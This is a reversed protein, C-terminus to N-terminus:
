QSFNLTFFMVAIVWIFLGAVYSSVVLKLSKDFNTKLEKALLYALLFWYLLEFINITQLPYVFWPAINQYGVANLLSFPYFYQLDELAFDKQYFYFWATKVIIVLLFIFEAQTVIDFVKKYSLKKGSFYLGMNILITIVSIKILLLVPVAVYGLWQWEKQFDFIQSIQESTFQESLSNYLVQETDLIQNSFYGLGITLITLVMFLLLIKHKM